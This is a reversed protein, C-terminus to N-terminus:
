PAAWGGHAGRAAAVVEVADRTARAEHVRVGLGRGGRGAGVGRDDRRRACRGPRPTGDPTPSCSASSGRARPASWCRAASRRRLDDLHALLAWNHEADKAFGLGPDLSSATSTSAPARGARGAPGAARRAVETVVDDYVARSAHRRQARALAHRRVAVGADAVVRAMAPDALGGSVDNVLAAGAELAAAAVAARMTDVSVVVGAASWGASSRCCGACSRPRRRGAARGAPDVRRRRRGPRRGDAVLALGHAVAADPDLFDGGDSFSDPTVNVVGM